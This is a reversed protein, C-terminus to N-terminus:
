RDIPETTGWSNGREGSALIPVRFKIAMEMIRQMESYAELTRPSLDPVSSLVEDHIFGKPFTTIDFVGNKYCTVIAMKLLDAASGQVTYNLARYLFAREINSGWKQVAERLPLSLRENGQHQMFKPEWLDFAVRRGLITQSYGRASTERSIHDMTDRVFPLAGHYAEFFPEIEEKPLGIMRALKKNSAGYGIAFNCNKVSKHPLDIGTMELIMSHTWRHYNTKPNDNYEQRLKDAGRGTAFHALIRCEVQSYDYKRMEAHGSDPVFIGRIMKMLEPNRSPINTLNPQSSSFRGTVAQMQNFNAHIKGKVESGLIYGRVFTSQFKMLEKLDIIKEAVPHDIKKLIEETVSYKKTKETKPLEFGQTALFRGIKDGSNVELHQGALHDVEKQLSDIELTLQRDARHAGEIDVTVGEMRMRVLIPLLECELRFVKSLGMEELIKEQVEAIELPLEVDSEAYPGVLRPPAKYLNGKQSEDLDDDEPTPGRGYFQHLWRLLLTSRKGKGVRRQGTAELSADQRHHILREAIWTDFLDGVVEVGESALFGLDYLLNHGLKWQYRRGLQEKLWRLVQEPPFNDKEEEQHRFPYYGQFGDDTAIAVGILHGKGRGWGAGFDKLDPDFTECDLSIVSASSLDPFNTPRKWGTEPVLPKPNFHARRGKEVPIDFPSIEPWCFNMQRLIRM